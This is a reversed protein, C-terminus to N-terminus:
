GAPENQANEAAQEEGAPHATARPNNGVHEDHDPVPASCSEPPQATDRDEDPNSATM